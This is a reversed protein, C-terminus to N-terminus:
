QEMTLSALELGIRRLGRATNVLADVATSPADFREKSYRVVNPEVHSVTGFEPVFEQNQLGLDFGGMAVFYGWTVMTEDILRVEAPKVARTFTLWVDLAEGW